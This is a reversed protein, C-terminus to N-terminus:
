TSAGHSRRAAGPEGGAPAPQRGRGTGRRRVGAPEVPLRHRQAASAGGAAPHPGGGARTVPDEDSLEPLLSPFYRVNEEFLDFISTIWREGFWVRPRVGQTKLEDPGPTPPRPSCSSAPRPGCSTASSTRRTPAWRWSRARGAGARRELQARLRRPLGASAVAHQHVGIGTRDVGDAPQATRTRHHRDPHGRRPRHLDFRQAGSLPDVREDVPGSLHEPMLTPLIGVMVIHAGHENAKAEAANLSARM